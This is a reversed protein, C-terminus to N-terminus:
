TSKENRQLGGRIQDNIAIDIFEILKEPTQKIEGLLWSEMLAALAISYYHILFEAYDKPVNPVGETISLFTREIAAHIDDYFFRKLHQHGLSNLTCLCVAKNEEIYRFLQLIGDQWLLVGEHEVVLKVAEEQYMWKVMDYIDEFHYYFTQRNFGSDETIERVSIKALPKKAMFKKLSQVMLRKTVDSSMSNPM